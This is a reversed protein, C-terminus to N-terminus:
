KTFAFGELMKSRKCIKCGGYKTGQCYKRNGRGCTGFGVSWGAGKKYMDVMEKPRGEALKVGKNLLVVRDCYKSISSLDHSVFLITKGQEKFEEFKKIVNQKFSCM